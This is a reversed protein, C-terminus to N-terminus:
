SAVQRDTAAPETPSLEAVLGAELMLTLGVAAYMAKILAYLRLELQEQDRGVLLTPQLRLQSDDWGIVSIVAWVLGLAGPAPRVALAQISTTEVFRTRHFARLDVGDPGCTVRSRLGLWGLAVLLIGALVTILSTYSWTPVDIIMVVLGALATVAGAILFAWFYLRIWLPSRIVLSDSGSPSEDPVNLITARAVQTPQTCLPIRSRLQGIQLHCDPTEM